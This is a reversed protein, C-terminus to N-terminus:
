FIGDIEDDDKRSESSQKLKPIAWPQLDASGWLTFFIAPLFAVTASVTYLLKWQSYSGSWSHLILGNTLKNVINAIHGASFAIGTISGTYAPGIQLLATFVGPTHLGAFANAACVVILAPTSHRLMPMVLLGIALGASGIGNFSKVLATRGVPCCGKKRASLYSSLSSSLNKSIWLALLPVASYLTSRVDSLHLVEKMYIPLLTTTIVLPYEQCVVALIGVIFPRSILLEKWPTNKREKRKGLSEENIKRLIYMKEENKVCCHKSPKDASMIMWIFLMLVAIIASFYFTFKWGGFADRKLCVWGSVPLILLSGIQRGGTIFGIAFSREKPPFWRVIMSSISPTLFADAIGCLIRSIIAFIFHKAALLPLMMNSVITVILAFSVTWKGNLRDAQPGIILMFLSGVNQACLVMGQELMTWNLRQDVYCSRIEIYYDQNVNVNPKASGPRNDSLLRVDSNESSNPLCRQSILESGNIGEEMGSQFRANPSHATNADEKLVMCVLSGALNTTTVSLAMLCSSMLVAIMMRMTLFYGLKRYLASKKRRGEDKTSDPLIEHDEVSISRSVIESVTPVIRVMRHSGSM